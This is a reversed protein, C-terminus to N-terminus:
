VSYRCFAESSAIIPCISQYQSYKLIQQQPNRPMNPISPSGAEQIIGLLLSIASHPSHTCSKSHKPLLNSMKDEAVELKEPKM